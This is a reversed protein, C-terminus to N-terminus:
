PLERSLARLFDLLTRRDAERALTFGEPGSATVTVMTWRDIRGAMARAWTDRLNRCLHSATRAGAQDFFTYALTSPPAGARELRLARFPRGDAELDQPDLILYGQAPMCLEPRHLSSKSAGGVIAAVLFADGFPTRYLRKLIQTDAPLVSREALTAGALEGGCRPCASAGQLVSDPLVAACQANQCFRVGEGRVGGPLARPLAVAPAPMLRPTPTAAQFAFVPLLLAVALWPVLRAAPSPAEEPEAEPASPRPPAGAVRSIVEGCVVMLAIAVGFVVYGSADHFSGLAFAPSIWAAVFCISLIRAVNGLVALPVACAFLAARRPWTPQTFWAYAATLAVLAFLSRLGSCGAEVDVMFPHAGTAAVVTGTQVVDIGCGRLVACAAGSALLRLQVTLPALYTTVPVTFLLFLAPFVCARAVRRGFLAWPVAVCLGIFGLQELRLQYGRTGVLAVFACPLCALLGRLSPAGPRLERRQTWLAYLSFLPVMWGHSMDEYADGFVGRLRAFMGAFGVLAGAALALLAWFRSSRLFRRVDLM